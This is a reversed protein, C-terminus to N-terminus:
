VVWAGGLCSDEPLPFLTEQFGSSCGWCLSNGHGLEYPLDSVRVEPTWQGELDM